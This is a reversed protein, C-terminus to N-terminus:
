CEDAQKELPLYVTFMTKGTQSEFKILGNHRSIISQSISLGLGTGDSRGTVMPFFVSDTIDQPIGIGNDEIDIRLILRHISNGITIKRQIRTRIILLPQEITKMAQMANRAINLFAQILQKKDADIDPLSPDYDTQITFTSHTEAVILKRIHELVEHINIKESTFKKHPGLMQDVLDRLRDAEHIIIQTYEKLEPNSLQKELLQAAGRLGGLPNKIEHALGRILTKSLAQSALLAKEQNIKITHDLTQIEMMLWQNNDNIPTVTYDVVIETPTPLRLLTERKSFQQKNALAKKVGEPIEGNESFLHSIHIGEVRYASIELLSEAAPNMYTLCLANDFLLIASYMNSLLIECFNNNLTM